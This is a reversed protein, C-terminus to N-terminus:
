RSFDFDQEAAETRSMGKEFYKEWLQAWPRGYLDPAEITFMKGPTVPTPHGEIPYITQVCHLYNYPTGTDLGGTRNLTRVIRIPEVLSEPDYFVAEHRLGVLVGQADRVPTYIEISQMQNSFEFAGHVTWGQINSTWTILADKDWFGVTEGYWRPVEGGLHPVGGTLDFSRGVHINTLMTEASGAQINVLHPTVMVFHEQLIVGAAHWRRM